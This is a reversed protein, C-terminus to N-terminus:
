TFYHCSSTSYQCEIDILILILGVSFNALPQQFNIKCFNLQLLCALFLTYCFFQILYFIKFLISIKKYLFKKLIFFISSSFDAQENTSQIGVCLDFSFTFFLFFCSAFFSSVYFCFTFVPIFQPFHFSTPKFFVCVSQFETTGSM